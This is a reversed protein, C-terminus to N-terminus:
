WKSSPKPPQSSAFNGAVFHHGSADASAAKLSEAIEPIV